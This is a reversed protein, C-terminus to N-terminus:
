GAETDVDGRGDVEICILFSARCYQVDRRLQRLEDDTFVELLWDSLRKHMDSSEKRNM